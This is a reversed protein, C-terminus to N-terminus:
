EDAPGKQDPYNSSGNQTSQGVRQRALADAKETVQAKTWLVDAIEISERLAEVERLLLDREENFPLYGNEYLTLKQTKFQIDLLTKQLEARLCSITSLLSRIEISSIGKKDSLCKLLKHEKNTLNDM